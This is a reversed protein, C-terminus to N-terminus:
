EDASFDVFDQLARSRQEHRLTNAGRAALGVRVSFRKDRGTPSVYIYDTPSTAGASLRADEEL